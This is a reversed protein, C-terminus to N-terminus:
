LGLRVPVEYLKGDVIMEMQRIIVGGKDINNNLPFFQGNDNYFMRFNLRKVEHAKLLPLSLVYKRNIWIVPNKLDHNSLNAFDLYDLTYDVLARTPHETAKPLDTKFPFQKVAEAAYQASTKSLAPDSVPVVSPLTECGVLLLGLGVLGIGAIKKNM